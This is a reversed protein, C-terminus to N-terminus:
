ADPSEEDPGDDKPDGWLTLSPDLIELFAEETTAEVRFTFARGAEWSLAWAAESKAGVTVETETVVEAGGVVLRFKAVDEVDTGNRVTGGVVITATKGTFLGAAHNWTVNGRIKEVTPFVVANWEGLWSFTQKDNVALLVTAGQAACFRSGMLFSVWRYLSLTVLEAVFLWWALREWRGFFNWMHAVGTTVYRGQMREAGPMAKGMLDSPDTYAALRGGWKGFKGKSKSGSRGKRKSRARAMAKKPAGWSIFFQQPDFQWLIMFADLVAIGATKVYLSVPADCPDFFFAIVANIRDLWGPPVPEPKAM